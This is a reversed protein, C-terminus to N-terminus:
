QVWDPTHLRGHLWCESQPQADFVDFASRSAPLHWKAQMSSPPETPEMQRFVQELEDCHLPVWVHLVDL